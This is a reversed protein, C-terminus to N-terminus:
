GFESLRATDQESSQEETDTGRHDTLIGSSADKLELRRAQEPNKNMMVLLRSNLVREQVNM